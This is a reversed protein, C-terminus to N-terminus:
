RADVWPAAVYEGIRIASPAEAAAAAAKMAPTDMVPPPAPMFVSARPAPTTDRQPAPEPAAAVVPTAAPVYGPLKLVEGPYIWHPDEILDTNLRYIEPWLFADGLYTNALDWLTDGRKVTHTQPRASTTDQAIAASALALELAASVALLVLAALAARVRRASRSQDVDATQRRVLMADV